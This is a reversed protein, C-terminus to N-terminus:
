RHPRAAKRWNGWGMDGGSLGRRRMPSRLQSALAACIPHYRPPVNNSGAGGLRCRRHGCSSRRVRAYRQHGRLAASGEAIRGVVTSTADCKVTGSRWPGARRRQRRRTKSKSLNNTRSATFNNLVSHLDARAGRFKATCFAWGIDFFWESNVSPRSYYFELTIGFTFASKM